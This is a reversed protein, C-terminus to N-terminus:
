SEWTLSASSAKPSVGLELGMNGVSQKPFGDDGTWGWPSQHVKGGPAPTEPGTLTGSQHLHSAPESARLFMESGHNLRVAGPEELAAAPHM